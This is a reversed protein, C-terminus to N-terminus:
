VRHYSEEEDRKECRFGAKSIEFAVLTIIM